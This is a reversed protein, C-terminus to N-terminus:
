AAKVEGVPLQEGSQGLKRGLWLKVTLAGGELTRTQVPTLGAHGFWGLM